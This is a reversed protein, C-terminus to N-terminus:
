WAAQGTHAIITYPTLTDQQPKEQGFAALSTFFLVLIRKM